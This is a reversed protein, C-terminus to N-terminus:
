IFKYNSISPTNILFLLQHLYNHSSSPSSAERTSNHPDLLQCFRVLYVSLNTLEYLMHSTLPPPPVQKNLEKTYINIFAIKMFQKQFQSKFFQVFQRLKSHTFCGAHLPNNYLFSYSHFQRKAIGDLLRVVTLPCFYQIFSNCYISDIIEFSLVTISSSNM